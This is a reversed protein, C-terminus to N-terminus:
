DIMKILKAPVGGFVSNEPVSKTVVSGAAIVSNKGITVGALIVSNCGIWVYDNVIIPDSDVLPRNTKQNSKLEHKACSFVVNYGIDCHRGISIPSSADFYVNQNVFTGEGITIKDKRQFIMVGHGVSVKKGIKFGLLRLARGRIVQSIRGRGFIGLCKLLVFTLYPDIENKLLKFLKM